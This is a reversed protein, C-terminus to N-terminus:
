LHSTHRETRIAAFFEWFVSIKTRETAYFCCFSYFGVNGHGIPFHECIHSFLYLLRKQSGRFFHPFCEVFSPFFNSLCSTAFRNDTRITSFLAAGAILETVFAALLETLLIQEKSQGNEFSILRRYVSACVESLM